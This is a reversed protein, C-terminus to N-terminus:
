RTRASMRRRLFRNLAFALAALLPLAFYPWYTNLPPESPLVTVNSAAVLSANNAEVDVRLSWEGSSPIKAKSAYLLKNSADTHRAPLAIETVNDSTRRTLHIMVKADMIPSQDSSKQVIVSLDAPGARLPVPSSFVSVNLRGARKQLLLTGGDAWLSVAGVLLVLGVFIAGKVRSM